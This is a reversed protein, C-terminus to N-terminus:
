LFELYFYNKTSGSSKVNDDVSVGLLMFVVGFIIHLSVALCVKALMKQISSNEVVAINEKNNNVMKSMDKELRKLTIAPKKKKLQRKRRDSLLVDVVAEAVLTLDNKEPTATELLPAKGNGKEKVLFIDKSWQELASPAFNTPCAERLIGYGETPSSM